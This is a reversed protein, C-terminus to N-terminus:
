PPPHCKQLLHKEITSYLLYYIGINVSVIIARYLNSGTTSQSSVAVASEPLYIAVLPTALCPERQCKTWQTLRKFQFWRSSWRVFSDRPAAALGVFNTTRSEIPIQSRPILVFISHVTHTGTNIYSCPSRYRLECHERKSWSRQM